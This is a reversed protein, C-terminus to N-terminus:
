APERGSILTGKYYVGIQQNPSYSSAGAAFSYDNSQNYNSWDSRHVRLKIEMNAGAALTGGTFSIQLYTDAGTHPTDM